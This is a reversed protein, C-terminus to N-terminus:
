GNSVGKRAADMFSWKWMRAKGYQPWKWVTTYYCREDKDTPPAFTWSSRYLFDSMERASLPIWPNMPEIPFLMWKEAMLRAVDRLIRVSDPEASFQRWSLWFLPAKENLKSLERQTERIEEIPPSVHTTLYIIAVPEGRDNAFRKLRFWYKALQDEIKNPDETSGSSKGSDLKVEILIFADRCGKRKITLLLDPEAPAVQKGYIEIEEKWVPWFLYEIGEVGILDKELTEAFDYTNRSKKLFSVVIGIDDKPSCYQCSGFVVSTLLDEISFPSRGGFEKDLKGRLLAQLM